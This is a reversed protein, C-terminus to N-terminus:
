GCCYVEVCIEGLTKDNAFVQRMLKIQIQISAKMAPRVSNKEDNLKQGCVVSHELENVIPADTFKILNAIFYSSGYLLLSERIATYFLQPFDMDVSSM